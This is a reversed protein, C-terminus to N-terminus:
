GHREQETTDDGVPLRVAVTTGEGPTTDLDVTGGAAEVRSRVGRLGFSAPDVQSPDFGTGDDVVDLCAEDDFWSLSVVCRTAQAHQVVNALLSRTVMALDPALARGAAPETGEVVFAIGVPSGILREREGVEDVVARVAETASTGDDALDHVIGRAQVLGERATREIGSFVAAAQPHQRGGTRSMMVISNLQQALTDHLDRALAEREAGRARDAAMQALQEDLRRQEAADRRLQDFTAAVVVAFGAGFLPGVVQGLTLHEGRVPAAAVAWLATLAVALWGSRGPLIFLALFELPFSLWTWSPGLAVLVAWVLLMVLVWGGGVLRRRRRGFPVHQLWLGGVYVAALAVALVLQLTRHGPRHLAGSLGLAWLVAAFTHTAHRVMTALRRGGDPRVPADHPM